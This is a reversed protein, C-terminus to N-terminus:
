TAYLETMNEHFAKNLVFHTELYIKVFSMDDYDSWILLVDDIYMALLKMRSQKKM